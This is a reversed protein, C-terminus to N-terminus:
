MILLSTKDKKKKIISVYKRNRQKNTGKIVYYQKIKIDTIIAKIIVV